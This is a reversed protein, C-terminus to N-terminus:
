KEGARFAKDLRWDLKWLAYCALLFILGGILYGEVVTAQM